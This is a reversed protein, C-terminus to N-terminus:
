GDLVIARKTRKDTLFFLGNKKKKRTKEPFLSVLPINRSIAWPKTLLSKGNLSWKCTDSNNLIRNETENIFGPSFAALTGEV